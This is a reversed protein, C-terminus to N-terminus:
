ALLLKTTLVHSDWGGARGSAIEPGKDRQADIKKETM